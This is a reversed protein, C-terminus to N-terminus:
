AGCWALWAIAWWVLGSGVFWLPVHWWPAPAPIMACAVCASLVLVMSWQTDTIGLFWRGADHDYRRM